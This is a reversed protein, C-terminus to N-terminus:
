HQQNMLTMLRKVEAVAKDHGPHDMHYIPNQPDAYIEDIQQKPTKFQQPVDGAKLKSESIRAGINGLAEFIEYNNTLGKEVFIKKIGFTTLAKDVQAIRAPLDDGYQEKLKALTEDYERNHAALAAAQAKQVRMVDFALAKEFVDQSIGNQFAFERFEKVAADDLTIGEPLEVGDHKYADASEPRGLATYFANLEEQSANEGPLAIKNKGIMKQANVFSKTLTAFNKVNDLCPENRLDEPLSDKWNESFFGQSDIMKSFDFSSEGSGNGGTGTGSEGASGGNDFTDQQEETVSNDNGGLINREEDAM